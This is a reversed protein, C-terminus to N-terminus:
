VPSSVRERCSARGIKGQQYEIWDQQHRAAVTGTGPPHRLHQREQEARGQGDVKQILGEVGVEIEEIIGVPIDDGAGERGQQAFFIIDKAKQRGGRQRQEEHIQRPRRVIFLLHPCSHPAKSFATRDPIGKEKARFQVRRAFYIQLNRANKRDTKDIKLSHQNKACIGKVPAMCRAIM